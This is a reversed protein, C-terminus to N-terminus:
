THQKHPQLDKIDECSHQDRLSDVRSDDHEIRPLVGEHAAHVEGQTYRKHVHYFINSQRTIM